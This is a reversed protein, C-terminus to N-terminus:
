ENCQSVRLFLSTLATTIRTADSLEPYLLELHPDIVSRPNDLGDCSVCAMGYLEEAAKPHDLKVVKAELARLYQEFPLGIPFGAKVLKTIELPVADTFRLFITFKKLCRQTLAAAEPDEDADASQISHLEKLRAVLAVGVSDLLLLLNDASVPTVLAVLDALIEEPSQPLACTDLIVQSDEYQELVQLAQAMLVRDATTAEETLVIAHQTLIQVLLQDTLDVIADNLSAGQFSESESVLLLEAFGQEYNELGYSEFVDHASELVSLLETTVSEALHEKLIDLM